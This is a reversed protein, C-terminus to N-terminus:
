PKKDDKDDKNKKKVFVVKERDKLIKFNNLSLLKNKTCKLM